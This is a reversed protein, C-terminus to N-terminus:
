LEQEQREVKIRVVVAEEMELLQVMMPAVVVVVQLLLRFHPVILVMAGMLYHPQVVQVVQVLLLQFHHPQQM